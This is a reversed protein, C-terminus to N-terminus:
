QILSANLAYNIDGFGAKAKQTIENGAKETDTYITNNQNLTIDNGATTSTNLPTNQIMSLQKIAAEVMPKEMLRNAWSMDKLKEQQSEIAARVFGLDWPNGNDDAYPNLVFKRIVNTPNSLDQRGGWWQNIKDLVWGFKNVVWDLAMVVANIIPKLMELLKAFDNILTTVMPMMQDTMKKWTESLNLRAEALNQADQQYKPDSRWAKKSMEAMILNFDADSAKLLGGMDKYSIGAAGLLKEISAAALKPDQTNMYYQVGQRLKQIIEQDSDTARIASTHARFLEEMLDSGPTLRSEDLRLENLAKYFNGAATYGGTLSMGPTFRQLTLGLVEIEKATHGVEDATKHLSLIEESGQITDSIAKKIAYIGGILGTIKAGWGIFKSFFSDGKTSATAFGKDVEDMKKNLKDMGDMLKDLGNTIFTITFSDFENM